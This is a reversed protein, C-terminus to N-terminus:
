FAPGVSYIDSIWNSKRQQMIFLVGREEKFRHQMDNKVRDTWSIKDMRRWYWTESSELYKKDVKRLTCIEAVSLAISWIYCNALKKRLNLDLKSTFLTKNNFASKTM